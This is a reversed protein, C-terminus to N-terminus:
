KLLKIFYDIFAFCLSFSRRGHTKHPLCNASLFLHSHDQQPHFSTHTNLCSVSVRPTSFSTLHVFLITIHPVFPVTSHTLGVPQLCLALRLHAKIKVQVMLPHHPKQPKQDEHTFGECFLGNIPNPFVLTTVSHLLAFPTPHFSAEGKPKSNRTTPPFALPSRFSVSPQCSRM